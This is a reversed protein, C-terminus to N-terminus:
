FYINPYLEKYLHCILSTKLCNSVSTTLKLSFWMIVKFQLKFLYLQGVSEYLM